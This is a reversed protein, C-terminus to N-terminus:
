HAEVLPPVPVTRRAVVVSLWGSGALAVMAVLVGAILDTLYHTGEVPTALLMAGNLAILPWRLPRAIWAAAIYLAASAAHFSPACVLGRLQGPDISHLEHLRLAPILEAQYLASIPMYPVPGRWLFALPGQAPMLSFLALTLVAALWFSLIFRRAEAQRGTIAFYGLLIAPTLFISDYVGRGLMQLTPHAAVLGYWALWNFRLAQDIAALRADAFGHNVTAIPYSAMAGLLCVASFLGAYEAFDRAVRQWGAQADRLLTRVAVIVGGAICIASTGGAFLSITERTWLMLLVFAVLSAGLAGALWIGPLAAM